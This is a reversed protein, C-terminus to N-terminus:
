IHFVMKLTLTFSGKLPEILIYCKKVHVRVHVNVWYINFIRLFIHIEVDSAETM